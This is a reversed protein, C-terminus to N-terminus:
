RLSYDALDAERVWSYYEDVRWPMNISSRGHENVYYGGASENEWIINQTAEDLRRNYDDFVEQRVELASHGSELLKVIASLVYRAWIEAFSYFGGARPSANPGYFTFLNPFGPAVMGLYSRAGDRDWTDHMTIGGRGIYNIPWFFKSVQFGTALVLADITREVGDSTVIGRETVHSIRESVLEVNPLPLADYWGGDVVLRRGLPAYSPVCKEFLVPDAGVKSRIYETLTTRLADNRENILGGSGQWDADYEQADQLASTAAFVSYCFWNWYYPVHDFLWQVEDTVAVKYGASPAIWNPTRQYVFLQEASRALAPMVQTGTSGNGILAVRKGQLDISRDWAATHCVDGSFDSLGEIEPLRPTSFLGSASIVVNCTGEEVRGDKTRTTLQWVGRADDWRADTVEVGFRMSRTVDHKAAIHRLYELTGERPAFYEPWPYRKEFKFQYLFSTTDVRCEPYTNLMWTGGLHEQRELIDFEIGLRRCLVGAAIGSIGAGIIVVRFDSLQPPPGSTWAVDRPFEDLALEEFGIGVEAPTLPRGALMEMLRAAEERPPPPPTEVPSGAFLETARAVVKERDVDGLGPAFFAGGRVPVKVVDMAALEPDGTLQYLVVRLVNADAQPFAEAPDVHPRHHPTSEVLAPLTVLSAADTAM